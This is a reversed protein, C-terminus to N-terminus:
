HENSIGWGAVSHRYCNATPTLGCNAIGGLTLLGSPAVAILSRGM